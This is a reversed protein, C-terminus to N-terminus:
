TGPGKRCRKNADKKQGELLGERRSMRQTGFRSFGNSVCTRVTTPKNRM